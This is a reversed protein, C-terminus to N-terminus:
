LIVISNQFVWSIRKDSLRKLKASHSSLTDFMADFENTREPYERIAARVFRMLHYINSRTFRDDLNYIDALEILATYANEIISKPFM